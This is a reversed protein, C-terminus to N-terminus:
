RKGLEDIIARRILIMSLLESQAFVLYVADLQNGFENLVVNRQKINVTIVHRAATLQDTAMRASIAARKNVANLMWHEASDANDRYAITYLMEFNQAQILRAEPTAFDGQLLKTDHETLVDKESQLLQYSPNVEQDPMVCPNLACLDSVTKQFALMETQLNTEGQSLTGYLSTLGHQDDPDLTTKPVGPLVFRYMIATQPPDSQGSTGLRSQCTAISEDLPCHDLGVVYGFEHALVTALDYENAFGIPGTSFARDSNNLVIDFHLESGGTECSWVYTCATGTCDPNPSVLAFVNNGSVSFEKKLADTCEIQTPAVPNTAVSSPGASLNFHSKGNMFSWVLAAQQAAHAVADSTGIHPGGIQSNLHFSVGPFPGGWKASPSVFTFNIGLSIATALGVNAFATRKM